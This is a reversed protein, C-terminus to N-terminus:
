HVNISGAAVLRHFRDHVQKTVGARFHEKHFGLMESGHLDFGELLVDLIVLGVELDESGIDLLCDFVDQRGGVRIWDDDDASCEVDHGFSFLVEFM